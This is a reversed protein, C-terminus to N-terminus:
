IVCGAHRQKTCERTKKVHRVHRLKKRAKRAKLKKDAKRVKRAKKVHRLAKMKHMGRVFIHEHFIRSVNGHSIGLINRFLELHFEPSYEM